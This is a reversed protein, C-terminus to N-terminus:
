KTRQVDKLKLAEYMKASVPVPIGLKEAEHVIYGSFTELESIRGHCIDRQLSSTAGDAWTNRFKYKISDTHKQTIGVGKVRAVSAAEDILADFEERKAPDKRIQGITYDYYSTAVNYGCNLLYKRWIELTIDEAVAHDINAATLLADVAEVAQKEKEDADNIGLKITAFDGQQTVSFDKNAFSIIYILSEVVTGKGILSRVRQGPDVGNMVPIIITDDGVHPALQRCTDELSYNKVCIFIFDQPGIDDLTVAREPRVTMEGNHDSHLTFGNNKVYELREGRLVMTVHDFSHAMVGAIYGGVGGAGIVAIRSNKLDKTNM